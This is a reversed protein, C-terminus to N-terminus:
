QWPGVTKMTLAKTQVTRCQELCIYEEVTLIALQSFKRTKSILERSRIRLHEDFKQIDPTTADFPKIGHHINAM